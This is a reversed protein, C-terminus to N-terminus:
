QGKRAEEALIQVTGTSVDASIFQPGDDTDNDLLIVEVGRDAIVQQVAGGEVMIVVTACAM